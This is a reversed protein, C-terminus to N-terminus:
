GEGGKSLVHAAEIAREVRQVVAVRPTLTWFDSGSQRSGQGIVLGAAAALERLEREAEERAARERAVEARLSAVEASKSAAIHECVEVEARKGCACSFKLWHSV